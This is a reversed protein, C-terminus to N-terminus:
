CPRPVILVPHSWRGRQGGRRRARSVSMGPADGVFLVRFPAPKAGLIRNLETIQELQSYHPRRQPNGGADKSFDAEISMRTSTDLGVPKGTKRAIALAVRSWDKSIGASSAEHERQRAESYAGDGFDHILAQAEADIHEIRVRRYTLWSTMAPGRKRVRRDSCLRAGHAVEVTQSFALLRDLSRESRM